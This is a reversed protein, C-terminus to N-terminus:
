CYVRECYSVMEKYRQVAEEMKGDKILSLVSKLFDNYLTQYISLGDKHAALSKVIGPAIQYYEEVMDGMGNKSMWDRLSRLTQLEPCNDDHSLNLYIATSIFCFGSKGCNKGKGGCETCSIWKGPNDCGVYEYEFRGGQGNCTSCSSCNCDPYTCSAM